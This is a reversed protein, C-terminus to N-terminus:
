DPEIPWSLWRALARGMVLSRDDESLLTEDETVFRVWDGYPCPLRSLDSGWFCRSPGFTDLVRQVPPRLSPFPYPESVYCPLASIKVAVNPRDALDLVPAIAPGLGQDKVELGLGIHDIVLPLYPHATAVEGLAETQGPAYVMVPVRAAEAAPWFWDATGDTLWGRHPPRHFTLRIGLMGPQNRWGQVRAPDAERIDLRGMVAFRDPHDAAAQLALDNRDGEWSPPVLVARTVGARDMEGLLEASGLPVERHELGRAGSPWPREPSDAGWIHVQGDVIQM